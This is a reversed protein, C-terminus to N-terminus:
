TNGIIRVSGSGSNPCCPPGEGPYRYGRRYSGPSQTGNFGVAPSAALSDSDWFYPHTSLTTHQWHGPGWEDWDQGAELRLKSDGVGAVLRFADFTSVYPSFNTLGENNVNYPLGNQPDYNDGGTFHANHDREM